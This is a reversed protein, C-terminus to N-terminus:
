KVEDHFTSLRKIKLKRTGAPLFVEAVDGVKKDVLGQGLPSGMSIQDEDLDMIDAIVLQFTQEKKTKMDEVVVTSGLGVRDSPIQSMDVMSLQSLRARLQNLRAAVFEQREKAAHYDGNEKLDGLAVAKNLAEPLVVNLEHNLAAVEATLKAKIQELM